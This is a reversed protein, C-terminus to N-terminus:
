TELLPGEERVQRISVPRLRNPIVHYIAVDLPENPLPRRYTLYYSNNALPIENAWIDLEEVRVVLHEELERIKVVLRGRNYRAINM